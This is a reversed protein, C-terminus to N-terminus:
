ASTSHQATLARHETDSLEYAFSCNGFAQAAETAEEENAYFGLIKTAPCNLVAHTTNEDM